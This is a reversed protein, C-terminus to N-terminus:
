KVLSNAVDVEEGDYIREPTEGTDIPLDAIVDKKQIMM